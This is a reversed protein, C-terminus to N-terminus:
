QWAGAEEFAGGGALAGGLADWEAPSLLVRLDVIPVLDDGLRTVGAWGGGGAMGSADPRGGGEGTTALGVARDVRVGVLRGAARVIVLHDELEVGKGPLGLRARLDLVVVVEGRVNVVGEVAPPALPLPAITVARVLERVTSAPLGYHRGGLDFVLIDRRTPNVM